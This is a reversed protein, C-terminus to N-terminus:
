HSSSHDSKMLAIANLKKLNAQLLPDSPESSNVIEIARIADGYFHNLVLVSIYAVILLSDHSLEYREQIVELQSKLAM